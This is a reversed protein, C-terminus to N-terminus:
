GRGARDDDRAEELPRPDPAPASATKEPRSQHDIDRMLDQALAIAGLVGSREGLAPAVLYSDLVADDDLAPLYGGLRQKLAARVLPLLHPNSAVGGGIVIRGPATVYTLTAALQALYDAVLGWVPDDSAVTEGARGLRRAIAPGSVLGELCDGHFPCAGSFSDRTPDRSVPIHGAEPHMAGHMPRGNSILGVGVGTGITIYAHDELGQSAGWRGEALAAGAVDTDVAIPVGFRTLPGVLDAGTWGPKPTPLIHGWDAATRDLRVPGFSAVGIASLGQIRHVKTLLDTILGLTEDPTTTKIKLLGSLDDPGTGFGVVVKTGGFEIGAILSM